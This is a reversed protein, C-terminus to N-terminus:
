PLTREWANNAKVMAVTAMKILCIGMSMIITQRSPRQQWPSLLVICGGERALEISREHVHKYNNHISELLQHPM